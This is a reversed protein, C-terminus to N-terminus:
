DFLGLQRESSKVFHERSLTPMKKESFYRVKGVAYSQRLAEAVRGTGKMRIGYRYSQVGGGHLEKIQSMVRQKADPYHVDLWQEFIGELAGNLRVTIYRMDLAGNESCAKMLPLLEHANLGPIMPAAMATVPIGAETLERITRLRKAPISARPELKSQLRKDLSTVSIAVHVLNHDAMKKLLDLDRLVLANKTIIGIPQRYEWAVELLQRTLELKREVPQYCDTNGSLMIPEGRWGASDLKKRLLQAANAKYLLKSEFDIGSNYGWYEHSNRAYCYSCGHECGQYPNMSWNSPIDPSTVENVISKAEVPILQTKVKSSGGDEEVMWEEVPHYTHNDYRNNPKSETGRSM